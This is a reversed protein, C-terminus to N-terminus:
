APVSIYTVFVDPFLRVVIGRSRRSGTGVETEADADSRAATQCRPGWLLDNSSRCSCVSSSALPPQANDIIRRM